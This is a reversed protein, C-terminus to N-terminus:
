GKSSAIEELVQLTKKATKEWSFKKVQKLGKQALEERLSPNSLLSDMKEAIDESREPDVYLAADGAAEPM